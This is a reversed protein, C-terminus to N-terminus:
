DPHGFYISTFFNGRVEDHRASWFRLTIDIQKKIQSTTTEDFHVSFPLASKILDSTIEQIFHPGLGVGIVYSRKTRSVTLKKAVNSDPFM